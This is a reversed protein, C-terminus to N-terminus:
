LLPIIDFSIQSTLLAMHKLKSLAFVLGFANDYLNGVLFADKGLIAKTKIKPFVKLKVLDPCPAAKDIYLFVTM